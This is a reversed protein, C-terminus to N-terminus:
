GVQKVFEEVARAVDEGFLKRAKEVATAAPGLCAARGGDLAVYVVGDVHYLSLRCCRGVRAAADRVEFRGAGSTALGILALVLYEVGGLHPEASLQGWYISYALRKVEEIAGRRLHLLAEDPPLVYLRAGYGLASVEVVRARLVSVDM